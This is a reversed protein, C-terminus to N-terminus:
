GWKAVLTVDGSSGRGVVNGTVVAGNLDNVRWEIFTLDQSVPTPLFSLAGNPVVISTIASNGSINGGNLDLTLISATDSSGIITFSMDVSPATGYTANGDQHATVACTGAAKAHVLTVRTGNVLSCKTTDGVTYTVKLGSTAVAALVQDANGVRMAAPIQAVINQPATGLQISPVALVTLTYSDQSVGQANQATITYTKAAMPVTPTGSLLGTTTNFTTGAPASPFIYYKSAAGGANTISYGVIANGATVVESPPTISIAPIAVPAGAVTLTYTGYSSGTVNTATITYTTSAQVATPTGSLLGTTSDFTLGNLASTTNPSISYSTILGGRNTLVYGSISSGITISEVAPTILISPAGVPVAHVILTYTANASGGGNTATVTYTTSVQTQLPTGSILGTTSDFTVGSPVDPTISHSTIAGGSKTITYGAIPSGITVDEFASSLTIVPAAIQVAVVELTYTASSFGAANSAKITYVTPGQLATATGSIAGSNLDFSLGTPLAPTVTFNDVLGGANSVTTGVIATNILVSEYPKSLTIQPAAILIPAGGLISITNVVLTFTARASGSANTATITYTVTGAAPQTGALLGTAPDFTLGTPVSPSISYSAIAGGTSTVTYGTIAAGINIQEFASSLTIAPLALSPATVTLTFTAASTGGSNTATIKYTTASKVSTV